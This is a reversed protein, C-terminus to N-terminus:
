EQCYSRRPRYAQTGQTHRDGPRAGCPTRTLSCPAPAHTHALLYRTRIAPAIEKPPDPAAHPAPRPQPRAGAAAPKTVRRRTLKPSTM